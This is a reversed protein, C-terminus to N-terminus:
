ASLDARVRMIIKGLLNKGPWQSPDRSKPNERSLGIGWISDNPNAEAILRDGTDLLAAKLRSDQTFKLYNGRYVIAEKATDWKPQRFGRVRRGLQKAYSPDKTELIRRAVEADWFLVAKCYMMYQEASYFTLGTDGDLFESASWQSFMGGNFLIM